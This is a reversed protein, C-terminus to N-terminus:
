TTCRRRGRPRALRVALDCAARNVSTAGLSGSVVAVVDGHRTSASGPGRAADRRRARDVRPSRTASRARRDRRRARRRTAPAGTTIAVAFRGCCATSSGRRRTSTSSCSRDRRLVAGRRRRAFRRTAASRSSRARRSPAAVLAVARVLRRRSGARGRRREAVIAAPRCSRRLGRGPLLVLEVGLDASCDREQGRSSGVVVIDSPDCARPSCRRPSPASRCSTAGTGGGTLM